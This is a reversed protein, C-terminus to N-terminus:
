KKGQYSLIDIHNIRNYEKFLRAFESKKEDTDDIMGIGKNLEKDFFVSIVSEIIKEINMLPSWTEQHYHTISLCIPVNPQFRGNPTLLKVVPPALPYDEHLKIEMIYEGNQYPIDIEFVIGYVLQM